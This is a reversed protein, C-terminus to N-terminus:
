VYHMMEWIDFNYNRMLLLWSTICYLHEVFCSNVYLCEDEKEVCYIYDGKVGIDTFMEYNM